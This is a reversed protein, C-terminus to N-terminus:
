KKANLYRKYFFIIMVSVIMSIYLIYLIPNELDSGSLIGHIAGFIFAPYLFGHIYRWYKIMNKRLIAAITAIYIMYLAPRGANALFSNWSSFNPIFISTTGFDIAMVVPHLSILVLGSISFFHHVKLYVIGFIKKSKRVLLSLLIAVFLSAVGTLATTRRLFQFLNDFGHIFIIILPILYILFVLSYFLLRNLKQGHKQATHETM